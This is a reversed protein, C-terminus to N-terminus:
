KKASKSKNWRETSKKSGMKKGAIYLKERGQRKSSQEEAKLALM